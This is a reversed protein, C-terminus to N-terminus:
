AVIFGWGLGETGALTGAALGPALGDTAVVEAEILYIVFLNGQACRWGWGKM